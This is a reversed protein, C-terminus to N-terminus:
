PVATTQNTQVEVINLARNYLRVNDVRGNFYEGWFQNGGIYVAGTSTTIDGTVSREDVPIGDVFIRLAGETKDYTVVVHSWTNLPLANSARVDRDVGSIRVLGAAHSAADSGYMAYVLGSPGQKLVLSQWGSVSAPRVWAELTMGTTFDLDNADNVTVYNSTGNFSLAQGFQGPASVAGGLTGNHGLGTKDTATGDDFNYSAVLGTASTAPPATGPVIPTRMLTRIDSESLTAGM